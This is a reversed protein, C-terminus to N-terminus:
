EGADYGASGAGEDSRRATDGSRAAEISEGDHELYRALLVPMDDRRCPLGEVTLADGEALDLRTLDAAPGLDVLWKADSASSSVFALLRETARVKATRTSAVEGEVSVESRRIDREVDGVAVSQAILVQKEGVSLVPGEVAIVDGVDVSPVQTPVVPGLDVIRKYGDDTEVHVVQHEGSKVQVRKSELVEGEVEHRKADTRGAGRGTGDVSAADITGFAMSYTSEFVGDDDQDSWTSYVDYLGDRDVDYYHSSFEYRGDMDTDWYESGTFGDYYDYFFSVEDGSWGYGPADADLEENAAYSDSNLEWWDENTPNYDNGDLWESVDWWADDEYYPGPDPGDSEQTVAQASVAPGAVLLAATFLAGRRVGRRRDIEAHLLKL